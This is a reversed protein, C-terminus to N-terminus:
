RLNKLRQRATRSSNTIPTHGLAKALGFRPMNGYISEFQSPKILYTEHYIGVADTNQVKKNFDRWAKLHKDGRAYRLLDEESEWYQVMLTSRFNFFNEMTHFGLDKNSFLERVMAPMALFVPIWKHVAWWKNIRMGILFVVFESENRNDVTFRGKFIEAGM